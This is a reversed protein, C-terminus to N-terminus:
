QLILAQEGVGSADRKVFLEDRDVYYAIYRM